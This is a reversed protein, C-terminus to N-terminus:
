SWFMIKHHKLRGMLIVGPVEEGEDVSESKGVAGWSLDAVDSVLEAVASLGWQDWRGMWEGGVGDLLDADGLVLASSPDDKVLVRSPICCLMSFKFNCFSQFVLM